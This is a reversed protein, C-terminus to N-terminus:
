QGVVLRLTLAAGDVPQNLSDLGQLTLVYEGAANFPELRHLFECNSPTPNGLGYRRSLGVSKRYRALVLDGQSLTYDVSSIANKANWACIMGPVAEVASAIPRIVGFLDLVQGTNLGLAGAPAKLIAKPTPDGEVWLNETNASAELSPAHVEARTIVLRRDSPMPAIEGRERRTQGSLAEVYSLSPEGLDYHLWRTNPDDALGAKLLAGIELQQTTSTGKINYLVYARLADGKGTTAGPLDNFVEIANNPRWRSPIEYTPSAALDVKFYGPFLDTFLRLQHAAAYDKLRAMHEEPSFRGFLKPASGMQIRKTRVCGQIDGSLGTVKLTYLGAKLDELTRWAADTYTTDFHSTGGGQIFAAYWTKTVMVKNAPNYFSGPSLILDPVKTTDMTGWAVGAGYNQLLAQSPTVGSDDVRSEVRRIAKGSGSEGKFLEVLIDGIGAQGPEFSGRVYFDRMEAMTCEGDSPFEINFHRLPEYAVSGGCNVLFVLGAVVLCTQVIRM